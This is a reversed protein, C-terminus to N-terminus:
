NANRNKLFNFNRCFFILHFIWLSSSSYETNIIKFSLICFTLCLSIFSSYKVPICRAFNYVQVYMFKIKLYKLAALVVSIVNFLYLWFGEFCCSKHMQLKTDVRVYLFVFIFLEFSIRRRTKIDLFSIHVYRKGQDVIM